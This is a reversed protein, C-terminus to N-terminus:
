GRGDTNESVQEIGELIKGFDRGFDRWTRPRFSTRIRSESAEREPVDRWYKVVADRWAPFDFPHFYPCLGETAEVLAPVDSVLCLKGYGMAEVAGLGWGEYISPFVAFLCSRYLLALEEDSVRDLLCLRGDRYIAMQRIEDVLDRVGWGVSGVFVLRPIERGHRQYLERWVQVLLRHNKRPNLTSVYLVFADGGGLLRNLDVPESRTRGGAPALMPADSGPSAVEIRPWRSLGHGQYLRQLDAKTTESIAFVRDGVRALELLYALAEERPMRSGLEPYDALITDYCAVLVSVGTSQKLGLIADLGYVWDRGVSIFCDGRGPRIPVHRLRDARHSMRALRRAEAANKAHRYMVACLEQALSPLRRVLGKGAGLLLPYGPRSAISAGEVASSPRCWGDDLLGGVESSTLERFVSGASDLVCFKVAFSSCAALYKATEREVRVVGDPPWRSNWSTTVNVYITM